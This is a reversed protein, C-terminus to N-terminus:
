HGAFYDPQQPSYVGYTVCAFVSSEMTLSVHIDWPSIQKAPRYICFKVVVVAASSYRVHIGAGINVLYHQLKM